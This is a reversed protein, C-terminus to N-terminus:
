GGNKTEELWQGVDQPRDTVLAADPDFRIRGGFGVFRVGVDRASRQDGEADGIYVCEAPSFGNETAIARLHESKTGPTGLVRDFHGGLGLHGITREIVEQPTGVLGGLSHGVLFDCSRPRFTDHLWDAFDEPRDFGSREAPWDVFALDLRSGLIERVGDWIESTCAYGSLVLGRRPASM